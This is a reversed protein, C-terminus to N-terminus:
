PAVAGGTKPDAVPAQGAAAARLQRAVGILRDHAIDLQHQRHEGGTHSRFREAVLGEWKGRTAEVDRRLDMRTADLRGAERELGLALEVIESAPSVPTTAM